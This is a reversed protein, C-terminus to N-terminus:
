RKRQTTVKQFVQTTACYICQAIMAAVTAAVAAVVIAIAHLKQKDDRGGYIDIHEM